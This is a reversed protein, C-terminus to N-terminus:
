LGWDEGDKGLFQKKKSNWVFKLFSKSKEQLYLKKNEKFKLKPKQIKGDANQIVDAPNNPKM